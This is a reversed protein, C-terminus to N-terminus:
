KLGNWMNCQFRGKKACLCSGLLATNADSNHQCVNLDVQELYQLVVKFLRARCMELNDRIHGSGM